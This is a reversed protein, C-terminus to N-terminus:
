RKSLEDKKPRVFGIVQAAEAMAASDAEIANQPPTVFQREM